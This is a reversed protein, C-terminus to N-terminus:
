PLNTLQLLFEAVLLSVGDGPPSLVKPKFEQPDRLHETCRKGM